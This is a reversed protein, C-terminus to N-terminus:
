VTELKMISYDKFNQAQSAPATVKRFLANKFNDDNIRNWEDKPMSGMSSVAMTKTVSIMRLSHPLKSWPISGEFANNQLCLLELKLPLWSLLSDLESLQNDRLDLAKLNPPYEPSRLQDDDFADTLRNNSLILTEIEEFHPGMKMGQLANVIGMERLSVMQSLDLTKSEANYRNQHHRKDFFIARDHIVVYPNRIYFDDHDDDYDNDRSTSYPRVKQHNRNNVSHICIHALSFARSVDSISLLICWIAKCSWVSESSSLVSFKTSEAVTIFSSVAFWCCVFYYVFKYCITSVNNNLEVETDTFHVLSRSSAKCSVRRRQVTTVQILHVIETMQYCGLFCYPIAVLVM